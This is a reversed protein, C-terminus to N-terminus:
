PRYYGQPEYAMWELIELIRLKTMPTDEAALATEIEALPQSVAALDTRFARMVFAGRAGAGKIAPRRLAELYARVVVSDLMPLYAPRKRFLVKTAVALGVGRVSCAADLLSRATTLDTDYSSLDADPPITALIPNCTTALGRHITRVKTATNVFSNMSVTALVDEPLVQMPDRDPIGDYYVWEEQAFRRMAETSIDIHLGSPLEARAM